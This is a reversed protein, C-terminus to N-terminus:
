ADREVRSGSATSGDLEQGRCGRLYAARRVCRMRARRDFIRGVVFASLGVVMLGPRAIGILDVPLSM